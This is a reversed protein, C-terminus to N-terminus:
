GLLEVASVRDGCTGCCLVVAKTVEDVVGFMLEGDCSTCYVYRQGASSLFPNKWRGALPEHCAPCEFAALGAPVVGVWEHRCAKCVCAGAGHPANDERHKALSVVEGM